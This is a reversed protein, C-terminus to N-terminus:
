VNSRIGTGPYLDVLTAGWGGSREDGLRFARVAPHSALVGHVIRRLTGTGKGHVIRVATMSAEQAAHVYEAVVDACERPLFTHLDLEDSLPADLPAEAGPDGPAMRLDADIDDDDDHCDDAEDALHREDGGDVEGALHREDGGDVERALHRKDGSDAEGARDGQDGRGGQGGRDRDRGDAGDTGLDGSDGVEGPESDHRRAMATV